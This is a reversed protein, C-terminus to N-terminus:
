CSSCPSQNVYELNRPRDLYHHGKSSSRDLGADDEEATAQEDDLAIGSHINEGFDCGDNDGHPSQDEEESCYEDAPCFDVLDPAVRGFLTRDSRSHAYCEECGAQPYICKHKHEGRRMM